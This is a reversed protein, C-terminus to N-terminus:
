SEHINGKVEVEYDNLDEYLTNDGYLKGKKSKEYSKFAGNHFEVIEEALGDMWDSYFHLIDGEYIEKGNKDKLGTFQGITSPHVEHWDLEDEVDDHFHITHMMYGTNSYLYSGIVWENNDLRKGRFKIERM